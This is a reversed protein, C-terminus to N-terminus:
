QKGQAIELPPAETPLEPALTAVDSVQEAPSYRLLKLIRRRLQHLRGAILMALGAKTLDWIHALSRDLDDDINAASTMVAGPDGAFRSFHGPAVAFSAGRHAEFYEVAGRHAQFVRDGIISEINFLLPNGTSSQKARMAAAVLQRREFAFDGSSDMLTDIAKAKLIAQQPTLEM